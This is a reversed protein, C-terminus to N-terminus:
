EISNLQDIRENEAWQERIYRRVVTKDRGVTSIHRSGGSTSASMSERGIRTLRGVVTSVVLGWIVAFPLAVLVNGWRVWWPLLSFAADLSVVASPETM